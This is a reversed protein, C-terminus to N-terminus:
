LEILYSSVLIEIGFYTGQENKLTGIYKIVGTAPITEQELRVEVKDGISLLVNKALLNLKDTFLNYRSKVDKIAILFPIFTSPVLKVQNDKCDVLVPTTHGPRRLIWQETVTLQLLEGKNIDLSRM